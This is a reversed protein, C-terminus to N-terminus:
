RFHGKKVPYKRCCLFHGLFSIKIKFEALGSFYAKCCYPENPRYHHEDFLLPPPRLRALCNDLARSRVPIFLNRQLHQQSDLCAQVDHTKDRQHMSTATRRHGRINQESSDKTMSKSKFVYPEHGVGRITDHKWCKTHKLLQFCTPDTFNLTRSLM